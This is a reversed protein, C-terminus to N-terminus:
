ISGYVFLDDGQRAGNETSLLRQFSLNRVKKQLYRAIAASPIWSGVLIFTPLLVIERNQM